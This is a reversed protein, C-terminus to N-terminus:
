LKSINREIKKTFGAHTSQELSSFGSNFFAIETRSAVTKFEPPSSSRTVIVVKGAIAKAFLPEGKSRPRPGDINVVYKTQLSTLKFRNYKVESCLGEILARDKEATINFYASIKAATLEVQNKPLLFTVGDFYRGEERSCFVRTFSM